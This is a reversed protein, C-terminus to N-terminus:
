ALARPAGTSVPVVQRNDDDRGFIEGGVVPAAEVAFHGADEWLTCDWGILQKGFDAGEKRALGSM